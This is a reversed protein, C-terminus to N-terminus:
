SGGLFQFIEIRGNFMDAVFVRNRKDIWIGAPLYFQGERAGTGGIPMLFEGQKNYILVYDYYSEVVYAHGEDDVAVGKPRVLDGMHLGREGLKRVFKGDGDFVQVRSNMTDSVYLEGAAFTLHTPFNLEGDGEGRQGITKILGGQEDFVKIDHGYTDAVYIWKKLPDWALGTPRKLVGKGIAGQPEGDRDLRVVVGLAADAVLVQGDAKVAIGIPSNFRRLGDAFEWVDLKGKAEDFVYVASRSVDTVYIRGSEDVTGSQPRQLVVPDDGGGDMGVVWRFFSTVKKGTSEGEELVFNQEGYLEGVFRFRATDPPSPWVLKSDPVNGQPTYRMVSKHEACGSALAILGLVLGFRLSPRWRDLVKM